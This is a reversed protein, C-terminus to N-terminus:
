PREERRVTNIPVDGKGIAAFGREVFLEFGTEFQALPQPAFDGGLLDFIPQLSLVRRKAPAHHPHPNLQPFSFDIYKGRQNIYKPSLFLYILRPDIYVPSPFLYKERQNIHKPSPFVHIERRNM